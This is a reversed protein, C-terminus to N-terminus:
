HCGSKSMTLQIDKVLNSTSDTFMDPILAHIFAAISGIFLKCGFGFSLKFHDCYNMCVKSLHGKM